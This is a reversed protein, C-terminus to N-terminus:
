QPTTTPAPQRSSGDMLGNGNAPRSASGSATTGTTLFTGDRRQADAPRVTTASGTGTGTGANTRSYGRSGGGMNGRGAAFLDGASVAALFAVGSAMAMMRRNM